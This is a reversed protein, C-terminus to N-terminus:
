TTSRRQPVQDVRRAASGGATTAAPRHDANTPKVAMVTRRRRGHGHRTTADSSRRNCVRRSSSRITTIEMFARRAFSGPASSHLAIGARSRHRSPPLRSGTVTLQRRAGSVSAGRGRATHGAGRAHAACAYSGSPARPSSDAVSTDAILRGRGIVLLSRSIAMESMLHSSVLVHSGRQGTLAFPHPGLPHRPDLRQGARRLASMPDRAPPLSGSDSAMGLSFKRGARPWRRWGVVRAGRRRALASPTARPWPACHNYASRGPHHKSSSPGVERLALSSASRAGNIDVGGSSPADLGMIMRMTDVQGVREGSSATVQGPSTSPSSDVALTDGYRKSLGRVEIM